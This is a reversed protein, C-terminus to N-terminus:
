ERIVRHPHGTGRRAVGSRAPPRGGSGAPSPASCGPAELLSMLVQLRGKRFVEDPIHAYETTIAASNM